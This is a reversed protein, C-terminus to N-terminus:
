RVGLRIERWDNVPTGAIPGPGATSAGAGVAGNGPWGVVVSLTDAVLFSAEFGQLRPTWLTEQSTATTTQGSEWDLVANCTSVALRYDLTCGLMLHEYAVWQDASCWRNRCNVTTPLGGSSGVTGAYEPLWHGPAIHNAPWLGLAHFAFARDLALEAAQLALQQHELEGASNLSRLMLIQVGAVPLALLLMALLVEILSFGGRARLDPHNIPRRPGTMM